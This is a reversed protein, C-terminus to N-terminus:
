SFLSPLGTREPRGQSLLNNQFSVPPLSVRWAIGLHRLLPGLRVSELISHLCAVELDGPYEQQEVQALAELLLPGRKYTVM